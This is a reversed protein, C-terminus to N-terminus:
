YNISSRSWCTTTRFLTSFSPMDVASSFLIQWYCFLINGCKDSLNSLIYYIVFEHDTLCNYLIFLSLTTNINKTMNDRNQQPEASASLQYICRHRSKTPFKLELEFNILELELKKLYDINNGSNFQCWTLFKNHSIMEATRSYWILISHICTNYLVFIIYIYIYIGGWTPSSSPFVVGRLNGPYYLLPMKSICIHFSKEFKDPSDACLLGVCKVSIYM